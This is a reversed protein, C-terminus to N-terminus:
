NEKIAVWGPVSRGDSSSVYTSLTTKFCSSGSGDFMVIDEELCGFELLSNYAVKQTLSKGILLYIISSSGCMPQKQKVGMFTRGISSNPRKSAKMPHLGVMVTQYSSFEEKSKQYLNTKWDSSYGSVCTNDNKPGEMVTASTGNILITRRQPEASSYTGYGCSVITGKKKLFFSMHDGSYYYSENKAPTRDGFFNLNSVAFWNLSELDFNSIRKLQFCPDPNNETANTNGTAFEYYPLVKAGKSLDVAIVYIAKNKHKLVAIKNGKSEIIDWGNPIDNVTVEKAKKSVSIETKPSQIIDNDKHCSVVVFCVFLFFLFKVKM